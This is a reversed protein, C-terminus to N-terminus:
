ILNKKLYVAMGGTEGKHYEILDTYAHMFSTGTGNNEQSKKVNTAYDYFNIFKKSIDGERHKLIFPLFHPVIEGGEDMVIAEMTKPQNNYAIVTKKAPNAKNGHQHANLTAEYLSTFMNYAKQEHEVEQVIPEISQRIEKGYNHASFNYEKRVYNSPIQLEPLDPYDRLNIITKELVAEEFIQRLLSNPNKIDFLDTM